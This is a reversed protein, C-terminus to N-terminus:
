LNRLIKAEEFLEPALRNIKETLLKYDIKGDEKTVSKKDILKERNSRIRFGVVRTEM